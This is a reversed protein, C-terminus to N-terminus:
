SLPLRIGKSTGDTHLEVAEPAFGPSVDWLLTGTFSTATAVSQVNVKTKASPASGKFLMVASEDADAPGRLRQYAPDLVHAALGTNTVTFRVQCLKGQRSAVGKIKRDCEPPSAEFSFEGDKVPKGFAGASPKHKYDYFAIGGAILGAIVALTAARRAWTNIRARRAAKPDIPPPPSVPPLPENPPTWLPLNDEQWRQDIVQSAAALIDPEAPVSQGAPVAETGGVLALLLQQATPRMRPDPHLAQALLGRLPEAIASVDYQHQQARFAMVLPDSAARPDVGAFPHRGMGAFGVLCGWAFVDSAPSVEGTQVQEPAIWGPSGVVFGAKTHGSREGTARAIGFDIVRPGSISLLVNAPKLDRHVLGAAHIATLAAAVGVAVGHLTASPLAGNRKIHESLPAGDVYETVLFLRGGDEGHDLVAATCFSAVRRAHAVEDRFRARYGQDAALEPQIVKIAVQRGDPAQALYVAGMGGEGLKGLLGYRGVAVPDGSGLPM